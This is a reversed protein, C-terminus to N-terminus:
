YHDLSKVKELGKIYNTILTLIEDWAPNQGSKATSTLTTIIPDSYEKKCKYMNLKESKSLQM